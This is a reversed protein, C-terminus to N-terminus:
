SKIFEKTKSAKSSLLNPYINHNLAIDNRVASYCSMQNNQNMINNLIQEELTQRFMLYLKCCIM